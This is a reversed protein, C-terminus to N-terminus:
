VAAALQRVLWLLAVIALAFPTGVLLVALPVSWVVALVELANTLLAGKRWPSAPTAATAGRHARSDHRPDQWGDTRHSLETSALTAAMHGAREALVM